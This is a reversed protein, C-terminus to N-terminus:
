TITIRFNQSDLPPNFLKLTRGTVNHQKLYNMVISNRGWHITTPVNNQNAIRAPDHSIRLNNIGLSVGLINIDFQGAAEELAPKNVRPRITWNLAGFVEDRFYTNRDIPNGDLKFGADSLRIVGTVASGAPVQQADSQPLNNKEWVLTGHQIIVQQTVQIPVSITARVRRVRQAKFAAPITSTQRAPINLINQLGANINNTIPAKGHRVRFISENPVIGKNVFHDINADTIPYLNPDNLNFLTSFYTKFGAIINSDAQNETELLVGAEVNAFLGNATLNSSGIILKTKAPGEFLYFKPHFIIQEKQFFIYASIQLSLIAKLAEKSTAEQDIGVILNIQQLHAKAAQILPTIGLVASVSAFATVGTFNTFSADQLLSKLYTGTADPSTNGFGQVLFTAKM